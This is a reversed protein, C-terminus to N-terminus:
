IIILDICTTYIEPKRDAPMMSPWDWVWYLTYRGKGVDDPIKVINRCWRNSGQGPDPEFKRRRERFIQSAFNPGYCEGDDFEMSILLRGREDGGKGSETWVHHINTLTDGPLSDNTGYIYVKGPNLKGVSQHPLTVHGNEQYRLLIQNGSEVKLAPSGLSQYSVQQRPMCITDTKLIEANPRGNPPLLYTMVNGNLLFESSNRRVQLETLRKM